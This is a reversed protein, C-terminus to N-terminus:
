PQMFTKPYSNFAVQFFFILINLINIILFIKKKERESEAHAVLKVQALVLDEALVVVFLPTYESAHGQIWRRGGGQGVELPLDRM